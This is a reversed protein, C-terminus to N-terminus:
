PIKGPYITGGIIRGLPYWAMNDFRYDFLIGLIWLVGSYIKLFKNILRGGGTIKVQWGDFKSYLRVLASVISCM